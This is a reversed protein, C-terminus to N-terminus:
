AVQMNQRLRQLLSDRERLALDVAQVATSGPTYFEVSPPPQGYVAQYPTM